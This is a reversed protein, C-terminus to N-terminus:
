KWYVKEGSRLDVYESPVYGNAALTARAAILAGAQATAQEVTSLKYRWGNGAVVLDIQKPNQPMYINNIVVQQKELLGIVTSLFNIQQSSMLAKGIEGNSFGEDVVTRLSAAYSDKLDGSLGLAIGRNDIVWISSGTQYLYAPKQIQLQLVPKRGILDFSVKLSAIEPFRAM